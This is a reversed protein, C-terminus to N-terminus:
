FGQKSVQGTMGNNTDDDLDTKENEKWQQTDESIHQLALLIKLQNTSIRQENM